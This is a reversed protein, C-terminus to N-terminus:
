VHVPKVVNISKAIVILAVSQDLADKHQNVVTAMQACAFQVINQFVAFHMREALIKWPVHIWVNAM